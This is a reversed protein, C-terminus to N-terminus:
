QAGVSGGEGPVAAGAPDWRWRPVARGGGHRPGTPFMESGRSVKGYPVLSFPFLSPRPAEVDEQVGILSPQHSHFTMSMQCGWASFQQGGGGGLWDSEVVQRQVTDLLQATSRERSRALSQPIGQKVSPLSHSPAYSLAGPEEASDKGLGKVHLIGLISEEAPWVCM